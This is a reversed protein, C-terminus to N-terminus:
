KERPYSRYMQFPYWVRSLPGPRYFFHLLYGSKAQPWIKAFGALKESLEVHPRSNNSVKGM